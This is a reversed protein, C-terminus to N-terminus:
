LVVGPFLVELDRQEYGAAPAPPPVPRSLHEHLRSVLEDLRVASYDTLTTLSQHRMLAQVETLSLRHDALLRHAFTHRLDHWTVNSGLRANVRELVQRLAFYNLPTWPARLTTWVAADPSTRAQTALYRGVLVLAEPAVPIWVRGPRGKPTVSVVGLGVDVGNCVMSLLESARAGSSLAVAVLARDRDNGLAQFMNQLLSEPLERPQASPERQRYACGGGGTTVRAGNRLAVSTRRQPVPSRLPGLGADVVHRYFEALVSLAHNITRPSYGATLYAKGTVENISGAAPRRDGIASRVRAPNEAVRLWRVYDRVDVRGAERWSVDLAALFRFWRLVDHGYSRCTSDSCGGAVLEARFSSWVTVPRGDAGFVEWVGGSGRGVRGILPLELRQM